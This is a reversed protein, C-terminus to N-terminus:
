HLSIPIVFCRSIRWSRPSGQALLFRFATVLLWEEAWDYIPPFQFFCVAQLETRSLLQSKTPKLCHITWINIVLHRPGAKGQAIDICHVKIFIDTTLVGRKSGQQIRREIEKKNQNKNQNSLSLFGLTNASLQSM